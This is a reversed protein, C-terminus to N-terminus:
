IKNNGEEKGDVKAVVGKNHVQVKHREMAGKQTFAKQCIECSFPREGTHTRRHMKFHFPAFFIKGCDKCTLRLADSNSDLVSTVVVRRNSLEQVQNIIKKSDIASIDVERKKALEQVKNIIRIHESDSMRTGVDDLQIQRLQVCREEM